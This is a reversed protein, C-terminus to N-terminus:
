EYVNNTRSFVLAKLTKWSEFLKQPEIQLERNYFSAILGDTKQSVAFVFIGRGNGNVECRLFPVGLVKLVTSLYLDRTKFEQMTETPNTAPRRIITNM